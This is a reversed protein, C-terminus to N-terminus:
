CKELKSLEGAGTKAARWTRRSESMAVREGKAEGEDLHRRGRAERKGVAPLGTQLRIKEDSTTGNREKTSGNRESTEGTALPSM